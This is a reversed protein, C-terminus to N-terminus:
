LSTGQIVVQEPLIFTGQYVGPNLTIVEGAKANASKEALQLDLEDPSQQDSM